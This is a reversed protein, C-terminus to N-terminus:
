FFSNVGGDVLLLNKGCHTTSWALSEFVKRSSSPKCRKWCFKHWPSSSLFAIIFHETCYLVSTMLQIGDETSNLGTLKHDATLLVWGMTVCVSRDKKLLTRELLLLLKLNCYERNSLSENVLVYVPHHGTHSWILGCRWLFLPEWHSPLCIRLKKEKITAWLSLTAFIEM